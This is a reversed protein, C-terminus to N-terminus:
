RSELIKVMDEIEDPSMGTDEYKALKRIMLAVQCWEGGVVCSKDCHNDLGCLEWPDNNRWHKDTKRDM